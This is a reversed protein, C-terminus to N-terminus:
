LRFATETRGTGRIASLEGRANVTFHGGEFGTLRENAIFPHADTDFIHEPKSLVRRKDAQDYLRFPAALRKFFVRLLGSSATYDSTLTDEAVDEIGMLTRWKTPSKTSIDLLDETLDTFFTLCAEGDAEAEKSESRYM